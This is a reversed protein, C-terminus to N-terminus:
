GCHWLQLFIRGGAQHVAEVAQKWGVVMENTYIGPTESWGIAYDAIVTADSILLGASSRQVYYEAMKANPVRESGSRSRTMPALAVRNKLKLSGMSVPSLLQTEAMLASM